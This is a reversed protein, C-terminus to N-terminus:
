REFAGIDVVAIGDGNGDKRRAFGPGRQDSGPVGSNDGRDIALSGPLLAHTATPGGNNRLAGLRPDIPVAATGVIDGNVGNTFGTSGTGDGILNHGGSVFTGSVDPGIGGFLVLNLAVITNKVSFAGGATHFLGGGSGALNEAVTCNLLTAAPAWVGGGTTSATNGSVTANVLTTTGFAFIGGGSGGATNGAVTSRAVTATFAWVGGGADGATNGAVTSNTLTATTAIIGGGAIVAANGAVTSNTLTATTARIGGGTGAANRLVASGIVTLERGSVYLGGGDGGAVNRAVVTRVLAVNVTGPAIANSVGGGSGDARNAAVVCDRLVLDALAVQIGGGGGTANGGRVTLRQFVVRRSSSAASDVDFVRDLQRGDIISRGAGTGVIAVGETIDFDGTANGDDAGPITIRFVGTPLRIVDAGPSANAATIAERLSLRGDAPDVVDQGTTVSFTAPATRDEL